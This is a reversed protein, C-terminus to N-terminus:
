GRVPRGANHRPGKDLKSPDVPMMKPKSANMEPLVNGAKIWEEVCKLNRSVRYQKGRDGYVALAIDAQTRESGQIFKLRYCQIAQTSPQLLKSQASRAARSSDLPEPQLAGSSQGQALPPASQSSSIIPLDLRPVADNPGRLLGLLEALRLHLFNNENQSM